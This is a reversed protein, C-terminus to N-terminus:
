RERHLAPHRGTRSMERKDEQEITLKKIKAEKKKQNELAELQAKSVTNSTKVLRFHSDISTKTIRHEFAMMKYLGTMFSSYLRKREELTEAAGLALSDIDLYDIGGLITPQKALLYMDQGIDSMLSHGFMPISIIDIQPSALNYLQEYFNDRHALADGFIKDPSIKEAIVSSNLGGEVLSRVIGEILKGKKNDSGPFSINTLDEPPEGYQIAKM